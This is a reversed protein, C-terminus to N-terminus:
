SDPRHCEPSQRSVALDKITYASNRLRSVGKCPFSSGSWWRDRRCLLRNYPGVQTRFGNSIDLYPEFGHSPVTRTRSFSSSSLLSAMSVLFTVNGKYRFPHSTRLPPCGPMPIGTAYKWLSRGESPSSRDTHRNSSVKSRIGLQHHHLPCVPCVVV